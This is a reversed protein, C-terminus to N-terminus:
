ISSAKMKLLVQGHGPEPVPYENFEVRSNGPLVVGRMTQPFATAM